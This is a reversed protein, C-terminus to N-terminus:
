QLATDALVAVLALTFLELCLVPIAVVVVAVSSSTNFARLQAKM